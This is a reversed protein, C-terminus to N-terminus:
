ESDEEGNNIERERSSGENNGSVQENIEEFHKKFQENMAVAYELAKLAMTQPAEHPNCALLAKLSASVFKRINDKDVDLGHIRDYTDKAKRIAEIENKAFVKMGFSINPLKELASVLVIAGWSNDSHLSKYVYFKELIIDENIFDKLNDHGSDNGV